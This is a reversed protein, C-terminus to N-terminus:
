RLALAVLDIQTVSIIKIVPKSDWYIILLLECIVLLCYYTGMLYVHENPTESYKIVVRGLCVFKSLNNIVGDDIYISSIHITYRSFFYSLKNAYADSRPFSYNSRNRGRGGGSILVLPFHCNSGVSGGWM